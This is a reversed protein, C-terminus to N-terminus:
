FLILIFDELEDHHTGTVCPVQTLGKATIRPM